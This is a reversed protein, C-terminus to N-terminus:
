SCILFPFFITTNTFNYFAFHSTFFVVSFCTAQVGRGCALACAGGSWGIAAHLHGMSPSQAKSDLVLVLDVDLGSGCWPPRPHWSFTGHWGSTVFRGLVHCGDNLRSTVPPAPGDLRPPHKTPSRLGKCLIFVGPSQLGLSCSCSSGSPGVAAARWLFLIYFQVSSLVRTRWFMFGRRYSPKRKTKKGHLCWGAHQPNGVM